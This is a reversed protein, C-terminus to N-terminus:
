SNCFLRVHFARDLAPHACLTNTPSSCKVKVRFTLVSAGSSIVVFLVRMLLPEIERWVVAACKEVPPICTHTLRHTYLTIIHTRSCTRTPASAACVCSKTHSLMSIHAFSQSMVILLRWVSVELTAALPVKAGSWADTPGIQTDLALRAASM